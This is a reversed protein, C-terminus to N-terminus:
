LVPLSSFEDNIVFLKQSQRSMLLYMMADILPRRMRVFDLSMTGQITPVGGGKPSAIALVDINLFKAKSFFDKAEKSEFLAKVKASTKPKPAM